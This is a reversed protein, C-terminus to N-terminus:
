ITIKKEDDDGSNAPGDPPSKAVSQSLMALLVYTWFAIHGLWYLGALFLLRWFVADIRTYSELGGCVGWFIRRQRSRLFQKM